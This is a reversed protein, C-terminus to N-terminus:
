DEGGDFGVVLKSLDAPLGARALMDPGVTDGRIRVEVTHGDNLRHRYSLIEGVELPDLRRTWSGGGTEKKTPTHKDRGAAQQERRRKTNPDTVAEGHKREGGSDSFLAKIERGALVPADITSDFLLPTLDPPLGDGLRFPVANTVLARTPFSHRAESDGVSTGDVNESESRNPRAACYLECQCITM